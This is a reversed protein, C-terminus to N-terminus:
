ARLNVRAGSTTSGKRGSSHVSYMPAAFAIPDDLAGGDATNSSTPHYHKDNSLTRYPKPIESKTVTSQKRPKTGSSSSSSTSVRKTIPVDNISTADKTSSFCSGMKNFKSSLRM